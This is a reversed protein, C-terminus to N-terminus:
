AEAVPVEKYTLRVHQPRLVREAEQCRAFRELLERARRRVEPDRGAAAQRLLGVAAPGRRAILAATAAEREGHRRSGLREVLKKLADAGDARAPEGARGPVPIGCAIVLVLAWSRRM